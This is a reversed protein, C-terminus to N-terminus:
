QTLVFSFSTSVSNPVTPDLTTAAVHWFYLENPTISSGSVTLSDQGASLITTLVDSGGPTTSIYLIYSSAGAVGAFSFTLDNQANMTTNDSPSILIPRELIKDGASYSPASRLHAFDFAVIKYSYNQDLSLSSTDRFSPTISSAILNTRNVTDPQFAAATDRYIEYGGLDGETNSSWIVSMYKGSADNHGQVVLGVPAAPPYVNVPKASVINSPLSESDNAYVATVQFLYTSDYSLSDIFYENYDTQAIQRLNQRNTGFYVNYYIVGVASVADWYILISADQAGVVTLNTPPVLIFNDTATPISSIKTCGPLWACLIALPFLIRRHSRKIQFVTM